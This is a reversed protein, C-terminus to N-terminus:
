GTVVVGLREVVVVLMAAIAFNTERSPVTPGRVQLGVGALSAPDYWAAGSDGYASIPLHAAGTVPRLHMAPHVGGYTGIGDVEAETVGTGRGSKILREGIRPLRATGIRAGTALQADDLARAPLARAIAADLLLNFRLLQAIEDGAGGGDAPGPQVILDGPRPRRGARLVHAASLLCPAGTARDLVVMGLTGASGDVHGISVGPRVPDIRHARTAITEDTPPEDDPASDPPALGIAEEVYACQVVDTRVGALRVPILEGRGLTGRPRKERMHIRVVLGAADDPVGDTLKQGIDIGTVGPRSAYRALAQDFARVIGSSIGLAGPSAGLVAHPVDPPAPDDPDPARAHRPAAPRPSKRPPSM